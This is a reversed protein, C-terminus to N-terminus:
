HKKYKFANRGLRSLESVLLVGIRNDKCFQIAECLVPREDNKKAGSIHEEFVHEVKYGMYLAYASLDKVQRETSQRDGVSSVRAYIVATKEQM